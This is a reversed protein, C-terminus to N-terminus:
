QFNKLNHKVSDTKKQRNPDNIAEVNSQNTKLYGLLNEQVNMAKKATGIPDLTKPNILPTNQRSSNASSNTDKVQSILTFGNKYKSINEMITSNEDDDDAEAEDADPVEFSETHGMVSNRRMPSNGEAFKSKGSTSMSM